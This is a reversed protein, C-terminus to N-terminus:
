NEFGKGFTIYKPKKNLSIKSNSIFYDSFKQTKDNDITTNFNKSIGNFKFKNIDYEEWYKIDRSRDIVMQLSNMNLGLWDSFLNLYDPNVLEYKRILNIGQDRSIRKHRIERCVHDTVKSYGHKLLKLYDHLNMYNYCDVHDYTDFTRSFKASQYKYDKIM